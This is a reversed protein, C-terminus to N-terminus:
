SNMKQRLRSLYEKRKGAAPRERPKNKTAPFTRQETLHRLEDTLASIVRDREKLELKLFTIEEQDAIRRRKRYENFRNAM